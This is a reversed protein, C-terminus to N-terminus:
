KSINDIMKLFNSSFIDMNFLKERNTNRLAENRFIHLDKNRSYQIGLDVYEKIDSAIWETYGLNSNISEGCRFMISENKMTLIPLGYYAAEFSTTGGNYPFTDLYIDVGNFSELYHNRSKCRNFILKEEKINQEM